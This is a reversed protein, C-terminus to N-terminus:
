FPANVFDTWDYERGYLSWVYDTAADGGTATFTVVTTPLLWIGGGVACLPSNIVPVVRVLRRPGSTTIELVTPALVAIFTVYAYDLCFVRGSPVTYANLTWGAGPNTVTAGLNIPLMRATSGMDIQTLRRTEPM